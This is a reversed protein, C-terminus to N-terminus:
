HFIPSCVVDKCQYLPLNGTIFFLLETLVLTKAVTEMPSNTTVTNSVLRPWRQDCLISCSMLTVNCYNCAGHISAAATTQTDRQINAIPSELHRGAPRAGDALSGSRRCNCSIYIVRACAGLCSEDGGRVASTQLRHVRDCNQTQRFTIRLSQCVLHIYLVSRGYLTRRVHTDLTEYKPGSTRRRRRVYEILVWITPWGPLLLMMLLTFLVTCSPCSEVIHSMTLTEGLFWLPRLWTGVAGTRIKIIWCMTFPVESCHISTKFIRVGRCM